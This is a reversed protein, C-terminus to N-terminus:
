KEACLVARRCHSGGPDTRGGSLRAYNASFCKEALFSATLLASAMKEPELNGLILHLSEKTPIRHARFTRSAFRELATTKATKDWAGEDRAM